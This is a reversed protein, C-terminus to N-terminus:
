PPLSCPTLRSGIPGDWGGRVGGLTQLPVSPSQHVTGVECIPVSLYVHLHGLAPDSSGASQALWRRSLAVLQHRTASQSLAPHPVPRPCGPLPVVLPSAACFTSRAVPMERVTAPSPLRSLRGPRPQAPLAATRGPARPSVNIIADTQIYDMDSDRLGLERSGRQASSVIGTTVTNQLAFPSGVAVVFEGPRLDASQGLLLVPLKEQPSCPTAPSHLILEADAVQKAGVTIPLSSPWVGKDVEPAGEIGREESIM